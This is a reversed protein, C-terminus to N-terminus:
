AFGVFWADNSDQTPGTKGAAARGHLSAYGGTVGIVVGYLMATLDRDVSTAIGRLPQPATRTYVARGGIDIQTVMYPYVRFGGNAFAAYAGTLELPTVEATGLALSANPQLPSTSGVRKAAANVHRIGIEQAQNVTITNVSHALAAAM